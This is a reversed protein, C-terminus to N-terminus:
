RSEEHLGHSSVETVIIHTHAGDQLADSTDSIYRNVSTQTLYASIVYQGNHFVTIKLNPFLRLRM